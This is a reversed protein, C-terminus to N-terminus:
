GTIDVAPWEEEPKLVITTEIMDMPAPDTATEARGIKGFVHQVEPFRKIIQDTQQLLRARRPPRSAPSPRRCTSCIAKTSRRCSNPASTRTPFSNAPRSRRVRPPGEPLRHAVLWNWPLFVWVILAAASLIVPWRWRIVFDIVPHYLWILFRNLPNREEPPIRGRIFYGMLVPALTISLLAAAAMSYTKTFALPKFLRGEQAQM